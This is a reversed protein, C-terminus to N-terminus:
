VSKSARDRKKTNSLFQQLISSKRTDRCVEQYCQIDVQLDISEQCTSEIEDLQISITNFGSIRLMGEEKRGFEDGYTTLEDGKFKRGSLAEIKNPLRVETDNNTNTPVGRKGQDILNDTEIEKNTNVTDETNISSENITTKHSTYGYNTYQGFIGQKKYDHNDLKDIEEDEYVDEVIVTDDNDSGKKPNEETVTVVQAPGNGRRLRLPATPYRTALRPM